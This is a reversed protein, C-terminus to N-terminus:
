HLLEGRPDIPGTTLRVPKHIGGAGVHDVVRLVLVHRRGPKLVRSLDATTRVLWVSDGTAPDGYRGLEAGDVYLRFSDDVGDFVATIPAGAWDAPVEFETRYWAVGDYQTLGQSEWHAGARIPRWEAGDGNGSQWGAALGRDKPDPALQWDELPLLRTTLEGSLRAITAESM